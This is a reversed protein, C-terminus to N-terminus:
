ISKERKKDRGGESRPFVKGCMVGLFHENDIRGRFSWVSLPRALGAFTLNDGLCNRRRLRICISELANTTDTAVRAPM